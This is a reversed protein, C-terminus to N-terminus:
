GGMLSGWLDTTTTLPYCSPTGPGHCDYLPPRKGTYIRTMRTFYRVGPHHPLPEPRWLTILAPYSIFTGAACNPVCNNIKETGTAFAESAWGVWRMGTLVDNGDACALIFTSPRVQTKNLCDVVVTTGGAAAASQRAATSVTDLSRDPAAAPTRPSGCVALVGALAVAAVGLPVPSLAAALLRRLSHTM